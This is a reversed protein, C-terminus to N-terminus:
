NKVALKGDLEAAKKEDADALATKKMERYIMSRVKFANALQPNAAIANGMDALAAAADNLYYNAIGRNLYGNALLQKNLPNLDIYKTYDAIAKQFERKQSFMVGRNYYADPASELEIAMSFDSIALETEGKAGYALGRGIYAPASSPNLFIAREYDAMADGYRKLDRYANGRNSLFSSNTPKLEIARTYDEISASLNGARRHLIGRNNFANGLNEKENGPAAIYRDYMAKAEVPRRTKQYAFGLHYFAEINGPDKRILGSYFVVQCEFDTEACNATQAFTCFEALLLISFVVALASTKM